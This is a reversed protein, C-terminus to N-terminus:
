VAGGQCIRASCEPCCVFGSANFTWGNAEAGAAFDSIESLTTEKAIVRSCNRCCMSAVSTRKDRESMQGYHQM